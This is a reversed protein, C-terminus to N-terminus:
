SAGNKRKKRKEGTASLAQIEKGGESRANTYGSDKKTKRKHDKSSNTFATNWPAQGKKKGGGGGRNHPLWGIDKKQVREVLEQFNKTSKERTPASWLRRRPVGSKKKKEPLQLAKKKRSDFAPVPTRKQAKIEHPRRRHEHGQPCIECIKENSARSCTSIFCRKGRKKKGGDPCQFLKFLKNKGETFLPPSKKKRPCRPFRFAKKLTRREKRRKRPQPFSKEEGRKGEKRLVVLAVRPSIEAFSQEGRNRKKEQPSILAAHSPRGKKKEKKRRHLLNARGPISCSLSFPGLRKGRPSAFPTMLNGEKTQPHQQEIRRKEKQKRSPAFPHCGGKKM